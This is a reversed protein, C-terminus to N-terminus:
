PDLGVDAAAGTPAPTAPRDAAPSLADRHQRAGSKRAVGEPDDPPFPGRRDREIAAHELARRYALRDHRRSPEEPAPPVGAPVPGDAAGLRLIAERLTVADRIVDGASREGATADLFAAREATQARLDSIRGATLDLQGDIARLVRRHREVDREHRLAASAGGLGSGVRALADALRDQTLRRRALLVSHRREEDALRRSVDPPGSALTERVAAAVGDLQALSAAGALPASHALYPDMQHLLPDPEDAALHQAICELSSPREDPPGHSTDFDGPTPTTGDVVYIRNELRGRTTAVYAGAARTTDDLVAKGKALTRGQVGYDTVAYGWHLHGAALYSVPLTVRHTAGGRGDFDVVVGGDPSAAVVTGRSGNKVYWSQDATRLRRSNQRAVVYKGLRIERGSATAAVAELDGAALRLVRARRNLEDRVSNRTTIMPDRAGAQWEVFWDTAITDYLAGATEARVVLGAADRRALSEAIRGERYEQNALREEALSAVVRGDADTVDRQRHNAALTSTREPLHEVAWAFFGGPGVPGHQKPDGMLVLAGGARCIHGALRDLERHPVMSAEDVLIVTGPTLGGYHPDDLDLLVRTLTDCQTGYAHPDASWGLGTSAALEDAAEATVAAGVVRIGATRFAAVAAEAAFTKGAGPHGVVLRLPHSSRCVAEVMARQGADLEPRAALVRAVVEPPVAPAAGVAAATAFALLRDEVAVLEPTTFPLNPLDAVFAGEATLIRARPRGPRYEPVPCVRGSALFRDALAVVGPGDVAGGLATALACIAEARSFSAAHETLGEPGALRDFLRELAADDVGRAAGARGLCAAVQDPGFGVAAGEARWRQHLGLGDAACEDKVRRTELAAVQRARASTTGVRALEAAFATSM